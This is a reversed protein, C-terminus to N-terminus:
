GKPCIPISTTGTGAKNVSEACGGAITAGSATIANVSTAKGVFTLKGNAPVFVMLETVTPSLLEVSGGIITTNRVNGILVVRIATKGEVELTVDMPSNKGVDITMTGTLTSSTCGFSNNVTSKGGQFASVFQTESTSGVKVVLNYGNEVAKVGTKDFDNFGASLTSFVTTGVVPVQRMAVPKGDAPCALLAGGNFSQANASVSTVFLAAIIYLAKM